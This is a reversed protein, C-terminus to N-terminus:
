EQAQGCNPCFKPKEGEFKYGCNSCFTAKQVDPKKSGCNSCFKGTNLSSCESCTWSDNATKQLNQQNQQNMQNNIEEQNSRTMDGFFGGASNMGMGMGLFANTAGAENSGAAEFGRAISGQVYGQRVSPDTLMAGKNREMLISRSDETYFISNIGVNVIEIGRTTMWQDDLVERMHGSLDRGKSPLQSIKIGEVSLNSIAAQLAEMFESHFSNEFEDSTFLLSSKSVVEKYFLIPDVVKVSYNGHARVELDLGYSADYYMVPNATGFKIDRIEQLNIYYVKQEKPTIGGFKFREFSDKFSKGLEGQFITPSTSNDVKFYGAEASTSVIQGGDVLLMCTNEPVHIISGNSIVDSFGKTNSNRESDERFRAGTTMIVGSSLDSPKIAEQWQEALTGGIADRIVKLLGM